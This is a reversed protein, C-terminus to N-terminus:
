LFRKLFHSDVRYRGDDERYTPIGAQELTALDRYFMRSVKGNQYPYDAQLESPKIGHFTMRIALRLVRACQKGRNCDAM